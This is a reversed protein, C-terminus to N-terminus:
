SPSARATYPRRRRAPLRPGVRSRRRPRPLFQRQREPRRSTRPDFRRDHHAAMARLHGDIRLLPQTRPTRSLHWLLSRLSRRALHELDDPHPKSPSLAAAFVSHSQRRQLHRHQRRHRARSHRRQRDHLRSAIRLQRAAYRLDFLFTRVTNEWGYSRVQEQVPASQRNGRPRCTPSRGSSAARWAPRPRMTSISGSKRPSTTMRARRRFLGRLGRAIQRSLSM